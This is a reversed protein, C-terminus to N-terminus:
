LRARELHRVALARDVGVDGEPPVQGEVAFVVPEPDDVDGLLAVRLQDGPGVAVAVLTVDHDPLVDQDARPVGLPGRGPVAVPVRHGRAPLTHVDEVDGVGSVGLQDPQPTPRSRAPWFAKPSKMSTMATGSPSGAPALRTWRSGKAPGVSGVTRVPQWSAATIRPLTFRAAQALASVVLTNLMPEGRPPDISSGSNKYVTLSGPTSPWAPRQCEAPNVQSPLTRTRPQSGPPPAAGSHSAVSGGTVLLM